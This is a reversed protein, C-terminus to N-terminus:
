PMGDKIVTALVPHKSKGSTFIFNGLVEQHSKELERVEKVLDEVDIDRISPSSKGTIAEILKNRIYDEIRKGLDMLIKTHRDLVKATESLDGALNNSYHTGKVLHARYHSPVSI